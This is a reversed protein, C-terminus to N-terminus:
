EGEQRPSLIFCYRLGEDDIEYVHPQEPTRSLHHIIPKGLEDAVKILDEMSKLVVARDAVDEGLVPAEVIREGYKKNLRKL